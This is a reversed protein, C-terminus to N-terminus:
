PRSYLKPWGNDKVLKGRPLAVEGKNISWLCGLLETTKEPAVLLRDLVPMPKEPDEQPVVMDMIYEAARKLNTMEVEMGVLAVQDNQLTQMAVVLDIELDRRVRKEYALKNSMASESQQAETASEKLVHVAEKAEKLEEKTAM